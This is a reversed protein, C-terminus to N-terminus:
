YIVMSSSTIIDKESLLILKYIGPSFGSTKLAAFNAFPAPRYQWVTKGNMDMLKLQYPNSTANEYQWVINVSERAPNPFIRIFEMKNEASVAKIGSYSHDNNQDVIKLRYIMVKTGSQINDTFTYHSATATNRSAGVIGIQRWSGGPLSREIEYHGINGESQMTWSLRVENQDRRVNFTSLRVPLPLNSFGYAPAQSFTPGTQPNPGVASSWITVACINILDANSGGSSVIQGCPNIQIFSGCPMNLKDAGNSSFSLIGYIELYLGNTGAISTPNRVEVTIGGPITVLEGGLPVSAPNWTGAQDWRGNNLVATKLQPYSFTFFCSVIIISFCKKM